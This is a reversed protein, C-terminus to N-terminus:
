PDFHKLYVLVSGGPERKENEWKWSLVLGAEEMERIKQDVIDPLVAPGESHLGRGPIIRVTFTGKEKAQQLFIETKLRAQIGSFGHLDLNEQPPPYRRLREKLTIPASPPFGAKKEKLLVAGAKNGLSERLSKSFDGSDQDKWLPVKPQSRKQTEPKAADKINESFVETFDTHNKLLPIGNKDKLLPRPKKGAPLGAKKRLHSALKQPQHSLHPRPAEMQMMLDADQDLIPLGKRNMPTHKKKEPKKKASAKNSTLPLTKKGIAPDITAPPTQQPVDKFLEEVPKEILPIGHRNKKLAAKRAPPAANESAPPADAVTKKEPLPNPEVTKKERAPLQRFLKQLGEFVSM